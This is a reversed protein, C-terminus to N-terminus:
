NEKENTDQTMKFSDAFVFVSDRSSPLEFLLQLPICSDLANM